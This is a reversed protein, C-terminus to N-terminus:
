LRAFLERVQDFLGTYTAPNSRTTRGIPSRDVVILKDIRDAGSPREVADADPDLRAALESLLSSKGAGSVGTVVNLAALAFEATIRKLNNRTLERVVLAGDGPAPPAAPFAISGGTLFSRTISRAAAGAAEGLLERPPGSHLVEGGGRGAGPGLDVLWDAELVEGLGHEVAIVTNGRDRLGRLFRGLRGRDRPHLGVTPEDLVVLLGRLSVGLLGALRIRQAEGASLTTSPRDLTLYGLGLEDLLRCRRVIETMIPSAVPTVVEGFRLRAVHAGLGRISLRSLEGINQGQLTVLLAEPRLRSGGCTACPLSRAFRLISRNRKRTLIREMVPLVGGYTAEERPRPTIGTWRLRSELPHKGCLIRIRDSGDLVVSRQEGTLDRWPIDVTFGHARCVQDLVDMTVQSYMLYGGPTTIALAGQRLSRAPDAVLLEPDIRESVGLGRCTPCAGHASNWSFLRRELPPDGPRAPRSGLRAFILRLFDHLQTLTGVTSRPNHALPRQDVAVAPSLGDIGRAVPRGIRWLHARVYASFTELYRRQGERCITDMVLSSKGSGSVGTVATLANRPIEVDVSRLNHETAGRVTIARPPGGGGDLPRTGNM